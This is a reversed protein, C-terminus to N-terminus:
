SIKNGSYGPNLNAIQNLNLDEKDDKGVWVINFIWNTMM